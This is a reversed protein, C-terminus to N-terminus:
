NIKLHTITSIGGSVKRKYEAPFNMFQIFLGPDVKASFNYMPLCVTQISQRRRPLIAYLLSKQESVNKKRWYHNASSEIISGGVCISQFTNKKTITRPLKNEVNQYSFSCTRELLCYKCIKKRHNNQIFKGFIKWQRTRNLNQQDNTAYSRSM